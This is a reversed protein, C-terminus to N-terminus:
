KIVFGLEKMADNLASKANKRLSFLSQKGQPSSFSSWCDTNKYDSIRCRTKQLFERIEELNLNDFGLDVTVAVIDFKHPYSTECIPCHM